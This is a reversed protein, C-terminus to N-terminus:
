SPGARAAIPRSTCDRARARRQDADVRPAPAPLELRVSSTRTARTSCSRTSAPTSTSRSCANGARRRRRDDQVSRPRWGAKWLPGQAAVYVVNSDRPDVVIKGIHESHKLGVNNWTKGGDISKYVGDGYGVSRQSNNEGTGVWVVLPDNPDLTVCGVSYSGQEDFIPKWTTGANDTKWVGGSAVSVFYRKPERPHVAIDSIRGSVLGPGIERLKLGNFTKAQFPGKDEESENEKNKKQAAAPLALLTCILISLLASVLKKM